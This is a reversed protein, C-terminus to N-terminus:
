DLWNAPTPGSGGDPRGFRPSNGLVRLGPFTMATGGSLTTFAIEGIISARRRGPAPPRSPGTGSGPGFM